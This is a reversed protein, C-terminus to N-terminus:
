RKWQESHEAVFRIIKDLHEQDSKRLAKFIGGARSMRPDFWKVVLAIRLKKPRTIGFPALPIDMFLETGTSLNKCPSVYEFKFGEWSIDILVASKIGLVNWKSTRIEVLAHSDYRPHRRSSEEHRPSM